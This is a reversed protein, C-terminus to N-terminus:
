RQHTEILAGDLLNYNLEAVKGKSAVLVLAIPKHQKVVPTISLVTGPHAKQAREIVDLLTLKTLSMLALQESSRAVHPVDKFIEIEPKWQAQEPSGSLEQLVNNEPAVSLGKEASYISLSLKGHDDFEFKASIVVSSAKTSQRIGDSLTIKSKALSAVLDGQTTADAAHAANIGLLFAGSLIVKHFLKSSM